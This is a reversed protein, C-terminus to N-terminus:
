AAREPFPFPSTDELLPRLESLLLAEVMRREEIPSAGEIKVPRSVYSARGLRDIGVAMYSAWGPPPPNEPALAFAEEDTLRMVHPEGGQRLVHTFAREFAKIALPHNMRPGSASGDKGIGVVARACLAAVQDMKSRWAARNARRDARNM